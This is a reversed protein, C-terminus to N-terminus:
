SKALLRQIESYLSDIIQLDHPETLSIMSAHPSLVQQNVFFKVHKPQCDDPKTQKLISKVQGLDFTVLETTGGQLKFIEREREALTAQLEDNRKQQSM